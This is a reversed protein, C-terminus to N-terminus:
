KKELALVLLTFRVLCSLKKGVPSKVVSDFAVIFSPRKPCLKLKSKSYLISEVVETLIIGLNTLDELVYALVEKCDEFSLLLRKSLSLLEFLKSSFSPSLKLLLILKLLDKM